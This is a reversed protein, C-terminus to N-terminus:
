RCCYSGCVRYGAPYAAASAVPFACSLLLASLLMIRILM